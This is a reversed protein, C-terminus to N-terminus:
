NKVCFSLQFVKRLRSSGQIIVIAEATPFLMIIFWGTITMAGEFNSAGANVIIVSTYFVASLVLFLIMTRVAHIHAQLNPTFGSDNGKMNCVHRLLSSVTVVLSTIIFIFPLGSGLLNALVTYPLSTFVVGNVMASSLTSNGPNQLQAKLFVTWISPLSIALSGVGSLLLLHPLFASLCQRVWVCLRHSFNTITACYYACLWATLWFIFYMLFPLLVLVMYYSDTVYNALFLSGLSQSLLLGRLTINAAAMIIHIVDSPRLKVGNKMSKVCIIIIVANLTIAVVGETIAISLSVLWASPLM